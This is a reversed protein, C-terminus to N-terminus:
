KQLRETLTTLPAQCFYYQQFQEEKLAALFQDVAELNQPTIPSIFSLYGQDEQWSFGIKTLLDLALLFSNQSLGTKEQFSKVSITEQKQSHNQVITLLKELIQEPSHGPMQYALALTQNAAIARQYAQQLDSWYVPCQKLAYVDSTNLIPESHNRRDLLHYTSSLESNTNMSTLRLDILRVEYHKEFPNYDLEVVLDCAQELPIEDRNHGWWIGPFGATVTDDTLLFYTRVYQV